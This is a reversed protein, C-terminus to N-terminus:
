DYEDIIAYVANYKTLSYHDAYQESSAEIKDKVADTDRSILLRATYDIEEFNEEFQEKDANTMESFFNKVTAIMEPPKEDTYETYNILRIAIDVCKYSSGATGIPYDKIKNLLTEMSDTEVKTVSKESTIETSKSTNETTSEQESVDAQASPTSRDTIDNTKENNKGCATFAALLSCALLGAFIKLYVKKM